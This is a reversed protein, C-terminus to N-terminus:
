RCLVALSYGGITRSILKPCLRYGIRGILNRPTYPKRNPGDFSAPTFRWAVVDFGTDRLTALATELSFYHLHGHQRRSTLMRGALVRMAYIDLPIHFAYWDALGRTQRLFGMYDDVHEFVDLMIALEFHESVQDLTQSKIRLGARTANESPVVDPSPEIGLSTGVCQYKQTMYLLCEGVGCGIDLISKPKLKAQDVLQSVQSAKWTSREAHWTPHKAAYSGDRYHDSVEM